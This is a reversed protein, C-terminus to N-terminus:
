RDREPTNPRGRHIGRGRLEQLRSSADRRPTEPEKAPDVTQHTPKSRLTALLNFQDTLKSREQASKASARSSNPTKTPSAELQERQKHRDQRLEFLLKAQQQRAEQIAHQLKQRELLQASVLADRQRRDRQLAEYTQKENEKALHARRGTMRDWLGRLGRNFRAQREQTEKLRRDRQATDLSQRETQHAATMTRRRADLEVQQKSFNGKAQHVHRQFTKGLDMAMKKKADDVSSLADPEGLKARVDKAKKDTYRAISLVEGEHTVAVHGRRDGKALLLGREGLAHELDSSCV